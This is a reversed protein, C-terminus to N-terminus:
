LIMCLYQKIDGGQLFNNLQDVPSLGALAGARGGFPLRPDPLRARAGRPCCSSGAWAAARAGSPRFIRRPIAAGLGRARVATLFGIAFSVLFNMVGILGIGVAASVAGAAWARAGGLAGVALVLSGTSLTVHRVDIPLRLMAGLTPVLGLLIGLSVSSVVGSVAGSVLKGPLGGHERLFTPIKRYIAWNESWGAIASSVWLLAGTFIAYPVTLSRLPHLSEIVHEATRTDMFAHGKLAFFAFHFVLCVPAVIALNALVAGLMSRVVSASERAIEKLTTHARVGSVLAAGLGASQKTALKFSLLHMLLFSVAYNASILIGGLFLPSKLCIIMFKLVVTGATVLGGGGSSALLARYERSTRAICKEGVWATREVVKSMVPGLCRGLLQLPRREEALGDIVWGLWVGVRAARASLTEGGPGADAQHSALLSHLLREIRIFGHELRELKYTLAPSAGFRDLCARIGAIMRHCELAERFCREGQAAVEPEGRPAHALLQAFIELECSLRLCPSESLPISPARARVEELIALATTESSLHQLSELMAARIRLAVAEGGIGGIASSADIWELVQELTGEPMNSFFGRDAEGGFTWGLWRSLDGGQPPWPDISRSVRGALEGTLSARRSLGTEAFVGALSCESVVAALVAGLQLGAEPAERFAALMQAFRATQEAEDPGQQIWGILLHCWVLRDHASGRLAM